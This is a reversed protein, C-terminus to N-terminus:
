AATSRGAARTAAPKRALSKSKLRTPRRCQRRRACQGRPGGPRGGDDRSVSIDKAANM